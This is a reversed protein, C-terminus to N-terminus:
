FKSFYFLVIGRFVYKVLNWWFNNSSPCMFKFFLIKGSVITNVRIVRADIVVCYPMIAYPPNFIFPSNLADLLSTHQIGKDM